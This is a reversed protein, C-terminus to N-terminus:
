AGVKYRVFTKITAGAPLADKVQSKGQMDRVYQQGLLTHEDVWKRIKGNAIKEAIEPPKGMAEAEEKAERQQKEVADAPLSAEDVALPTPQHSAVHQCLGTLLEDDLDGEAQLIVGYQRNHHLYAGLRGGSLKHGRRFSCNEKTTFRVNDVEQQIADDTQVEGDAKELALQAIKEAADVTNQNRATFDTETNLEVIAVADSRHAVALTGEAVARDTREDMKGKAKKRLVEVAAEMDGDAEALAGKCDMMGMGTRERLAKVDQPSIAM